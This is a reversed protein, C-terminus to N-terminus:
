AQTCTSSTHLGWAARDSISVVFGHFRSWRNADLCAVGRDSACRSQTFGNCNLRSYTALDPRHCAHWKKKFMDVINLINSPDESNIGSRLASTLWVSVCSRPCGWLYNSSFRLCVPGPTRKPFNEPPNCPQLTRETGNENGIPEPDLQNRTWNTGNRNRELEM